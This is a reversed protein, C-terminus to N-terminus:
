NCMYGRGSVMSRRLERVSRPEGALRAAHRVPCPAHRPASFRGDAVSGTLPRSPGAPRVRCAHHHVVGDSASLPPLPSPPGPASAASSPCHVLLPPPPPPPPPHRPPPSPPRAPLSQSNKTFSKRQLPEKWAVGMPTANFILNISVLGGVAAFSM